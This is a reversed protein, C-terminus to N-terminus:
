KGKALKLDAITVSALRKRIDGDIGSLTNEVTARGSNNLAAFQTTERAMAPGQVAEVVDHLTVKDAPKALRYGGKVGRMSTLVGANVLSRLIQLVFREPLNAAKCVASCASLEDPRAAMYVLSSVAYSAGQTFIM